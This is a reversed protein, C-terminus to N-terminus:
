RRKGCLPYLEDDSWATCTGHSGTSGVFRGALIQSGLGSGQITREFSSVSGDGVGTGPNNTASCYMNDIAADGNNTKCYGRTYKWLKITKGHSINEPHWPAGATKACYGCRCSHHAIGTDGFIVLFVNASETLPYVSSANNSRDPTLIRKVSRAPPALGAGYSERFRAPCTPSSGEATLEFRLM